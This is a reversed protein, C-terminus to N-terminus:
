LPEGDANVVVEGRYTQVYRYPGNVPEVKEITITEERDAKRATQTAQRAAQPADASCATCYGTPKFTDADIVSADGCNRCDDPNRKRAM